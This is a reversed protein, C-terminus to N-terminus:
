NITEGSGRAVRVKTGNELVKFGVRTPKNTKPDVLMVSSMALSGEREVIGGTPNAQSPKSHKKVLNVKEVILRGKSVLVKLVKGRKGKNKGRTVVVTDGKKIRM